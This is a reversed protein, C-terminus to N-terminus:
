QANQCLNFIEDYAEYTASSGENDTLNKEILQMWTTSGSQVVNLNAYGVSGDTYASEIGPSPWQAWDQSNFPVGTGNADIYDLIFVDVQHADTTKQYKRLISAPGEGSLGSSKQRPNYMYPSRVSPGSTGVGADTSMFSPTSYQSPQLEPDQLLPCFFVNPNQIIGNGYLYGENQNYSEPNQPIIMHAPMNAAGNPNYEIWRTYFFADLNNITTPPNNVSGLTCIPFWDHNDTAYMISGAVMQKLNNIDTARMAKRNATAIVPLLIAALIAIIAIVILLEILTFGSPRGSKMNPDMNHGYIYALGSNLALRCKM